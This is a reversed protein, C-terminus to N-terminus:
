RKLAVREREEVQYSVFPLKYLQRRGEVKQRRGEGEKRLSIWM